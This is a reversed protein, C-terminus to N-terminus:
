LMIPHVSYGYGDSERLVAGGVLKATAFLVLKHGEKCGIAQYLGLAFKPPVLSGVTLLRDM